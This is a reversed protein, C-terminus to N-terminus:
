VHLSQDMYHVAIGTGCYGEHWGPVRCPGFANISLRVEQMKNCVLRKHCLYGNGAILLVGTYASTFLQRGPYIQGRFFRQHAKIYSDRLAGKSLSLTVIERLLNRPNYNM